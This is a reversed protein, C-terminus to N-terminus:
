AIDGTLIVEHRARTIAVYLMRAITNGNNCKAIDSLDIFVKDFTSGQSKNVTCAYMARLDAWKDAMAILTYEQLERWMLIKKKVEKWSDPVFVTVQHNVEVNTGTIGHITTKGLLRSIFVIEDTALRFNGISIHQNNVCFDGEQFEATTKVQEAVYQNYQQVRKNTWALIKSRNYNWTPDLFEKDVEAKFDETNLWKIAVNDPTFQFFKGTNVTERFKTALAIIPNGAAQRMVETLSATPFKANFVPTHTAKVPTLQAPDGIFVIKCKMLKICITELLKSDIFSAEDIFVLTNHFEKRQRDVLTTQGTTYDKHVSLGLFSHITTVPYGTMRGLVDAAKNTTATVEVSMNTFKPNVMHITKMISPISDLLHKVLTSKGTGAYGALVFVPQDPDLLFSMFADLAASQGPSLTIENNM